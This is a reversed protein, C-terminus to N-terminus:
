SRTLFIEQKSNKEKRADRKELLDFDRKILRLKVGLRNNDSNCCPRLRRERASACTEGDSCYIMIGSIQKGEVASSSSCFLIRQKVSNNSSGDGSNFDNVKVRDPLQNHLM